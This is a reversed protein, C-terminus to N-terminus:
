SVAETRLRESFEEILRNQDDANFQAALLERARAAALEALSRRLARQGAEAIAAATLEADRRIRDASSKATSAIRQVERATEEDMEKRLNAKDEVFTAQRAASRDFLEQAKALAAELGSRTERIETSRDCFFKRVVPAAYFVVIALFAGFNLVYFLLSLWSGGSEGGEQCFALSPCTLLGLAATIAVKRKM